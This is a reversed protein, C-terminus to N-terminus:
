RRRRATKLAEEALKSRLSSNEKLHIIANCLADSDRDPVVYANEGHIAFDTVGGSDTCICPRGSAMAELLVNGFTETGSPFVFLDSDAYLEALMEGKVFGTLRVNDM